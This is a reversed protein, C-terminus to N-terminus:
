ATGRRAAQDLEQCLGVFSLAAEVKTSSWRYLSQEVSSINVESFDMDIFIDNDSLLKLNDAKIGPVYQQVNKALYPGFQFKYNIDEKTKGELVLGIDGVEGFDKKFATALGGEAFRDLPSRKNALQGTPTAVVCTFRIGARAFREVNYIRLLASCIKNMKEFEPQSRLADLQIGSPWDFHGNLSQLEVSIGLSDVGNAPVSTKAVFSNSISGEGIDTFFGKETAILAKLVSGRRDLFDFSPDFDLRWIVKLLKHTM